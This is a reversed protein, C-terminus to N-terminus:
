RTTEAQEVTAEVSVDGYRHRLQRYKRLQSVAMMEKVQWRGYRVAKKLALIDTIGCNKMIAAKAKERVYPLGLPYDRGAILIRKYLDRVLPHM